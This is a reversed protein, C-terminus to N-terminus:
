FLLVAVLVLLSVILTAVGSSGLPDGAGCSPDYIINASGAPFSIDVINAKLGAKYVANAAASITSDDNVDTVAAASTKIIVAGTKGGIDAEASYVVYVKSAGSGTSITSVGDAKGAAAGTVVGTVLAVNNTPDSYSWGSIEIVSELTKPTVPTSVAGFNVIGLTESILFTMQVSEGTKLQSGLLPNAASVVIYHLGDSSSGNQTSWVLNKLVVSRVVAGAPTREELRLYATVIFAGAASYDIQSLSTADTSTQSASADASIYGMFAVPIQTYVFKILGAILDGHATVSGGSGQVDVAASYYGALTFGTLPIAWVGTRRYTFEDINGTTVNRSTDYTITTTGFVVTILLFIALLTIKMQQQKQWVNRLLEFVM